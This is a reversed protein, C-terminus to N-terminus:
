PIRHLQPHPYALGKIFKITALRLQCPHCFIQSVAWVQSHGSPSHFWNFHERSFAFAPAQFCLLFEQGSIDDKCLWGVSSHNKIPLLFPSTFCLESTMEICFEDPQTPSLKFTDPCCWSPHSPFNSVSKYKHVGLKCHYWEWPESSNEWKIYIACDTKLIHAQLTSSEAQKQWICHFNRTNLAECFQVWAVNWQTAPTFTIWHSCDWVSQQFRWRIIHSLLSNCQTKSM